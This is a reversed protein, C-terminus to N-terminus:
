LAAVVTKTELFADIGQEGGERGWGSQKFGGFPLGPGVIMGSNITVTGAEIAKAVLFANSVDRTWINASLGYESDNALTVAEQIEDFVTVALVPGFVENQFLSSSSIVNTVVTPEVFYGQREPVRGGTVVECGEERATNIHRMVNDRQIASVLPGLTTKPDLGNGLVLKQAQAVVGEVVQDLLSRHVLLRSSAACVQGANRFIGHAVAPIVRDLDADPLVITPSKGGLELTLRKLNGQSAQILKKGVATSGTFSVKSVDTSNAIRAGVVDGYGTVINVVGAPVGAELLIEGLCITTLSSQEAPKLVITCGSALAPGLKAAANALPFNWPVILGVVGVPQKMTMAVYNGPLDVTPASGSIKGCWGSWYRFYKAAMPVDIAQSATIPKGNDITELEALEVSKQEILDSIKWMIRERVSPMLGSWVKQDHAEKAIKIARDVDAEDGAPICAVQQETAPNIVPITAGSTADCWQDGILMQFPQELRKQTENSIKVTGMNM